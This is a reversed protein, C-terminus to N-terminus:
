WLLGYVIVNATLYILSLLISKQPQTMSLSTFFYTNLSLCVLFVYENENIASMSGKLILMIFTGIILVSVSLRIVKWLEGPRSALWIGQYIKTIFILITMWSLMALFPVDETRLEYLLFYKSTSYLFGSILVPFMILCSLGVLIRGFENKTNVETSNKISFIIANRLANGVFGFKEYIRMVVLFQASIISEMFFIAIIKLFNKNIFNLIAVKDLNLNQNVHNITKIPKNTQRPGFYFWIFPVILSSMFYVTDVGLPIFRSSAIILSLRSTNIAVSLYLKLDPRGQNLFYAYLINEYLGIVLCALILIGYNVQDNILPLAMLIISIVSLRTLISGHFSHNKNSASNWGVILTETSKGLDLVYTAISLLVGFRIYDAFYNQPHLSKLVWLTLLVLCASTIGNALQISFNRRFKLM